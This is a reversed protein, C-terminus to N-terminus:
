TVHSYVSVGDYKSFALFVVHTCFHFLEEIALLLVISHVGEPIKVKKFYCEVSLFFIIFM